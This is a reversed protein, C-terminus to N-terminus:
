RMDATTAPHEEDTNDWLYKFIYIARNKNVM